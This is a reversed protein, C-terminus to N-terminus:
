DGGRKKKVAKVIIDILKGLTAGFVEFETMATVEKIIKIFVTNEQCNKDYM